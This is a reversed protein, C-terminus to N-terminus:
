ESAFPNMVIVPRSITGRVVARAVRGTAIALAAGFWKGVLWVQSFLGGDLRPVVLLRLDGDLSVSGSILVSGKPLTVRASSLHIESARAPAGAMPAADDPQRIEVTVEASDQGRTNAVNGVLLNTLFSMEILNADSITVQGRGEAARVDNTPFTLDLRGNVRGTYSDTTSGLGALLASLDVNAVMAFVRTRNSTLDIAIMGRIEGGYFVAQCDHFTLVRNTLVPRASVDNLLLPGLVLENLHIAEGDITAVLDSPITPAITQEGAAVEGTLLVGVLLWLLTLRRSM